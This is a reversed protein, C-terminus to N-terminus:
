IFFENPNENNATQSDNQSSSFPFEHGDDSQSSKVQQTRYTEKRSCVFRAMIVLAAVTIFIVVAIVGGILASDSRITNVLPQGPDVSSAPRSSSHTWPRNVSVSHLRGDCLEAGSSRWVEPDRSSDLSYRVELEEQTNVLLAIHQRYSSVYLLMAPSHSTRFSLSMNEGTWDQEESQARESLDFPDSVSFLVSTSPKFIASVEQHCFAGTFASEGCQCYFGRDREVCVGQNRCLSGYTSCHGPCGARVGPTVRARQELDLTEGNLQLARLCGLFGKQRSATGWTYTDTPPPETPAPPYHDVRLSTEKVNREARVRHWRDDNLPLPTQVLVELPGNGVDLSFVVESPSRLEIRIFDKIGLNELFVGSASSTKFFFSIDANLEGHFTPFHLYSTEKDFFAANWFNETTGTPTVTATTRPTWAPTSFDVHVSDAGLCLGGWFLQEQGAGPGGVWWSFPSGDPTNLLRSKRCYYSLEQECHESQNIIGMLQQEDSGYHFHASHQPEWPSPSVRTLETNNHQVVMWVREEGFYLQANAKLPLPATIHATAGENQDVSVSVTDLALTLQLSHWQGDSLGSGQQHYLLLRGKDLVLTLSHDGRGEAHLLTGSNKLSKFKLSISESTPSSPRATLKYVLASSGDFHAVDSTYPCGYVELRLGIRGTPNWELPILRLFRAIVPQELKYQVVSDANTNGPLAGLSDEQRHQRWNHGTDSFMLLYATLWDSSGYRGQTAVASISTRKGLDVDLWQYSDSVLPSWGWSRCACFPFFTVKFSKTAM